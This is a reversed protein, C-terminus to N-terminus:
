LSGVVLFLLVLLVVGAVVVVTSGKKVLISVDAAAVVDGVTAIETRRTPAMEVSM